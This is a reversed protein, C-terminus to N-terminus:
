STTLAGSGRLTVNYTAKGRLPGNVEISEVYATGTLTESGIVFGVNLLTGDLLYGILSVHEGLAYLGSVSMSWDYLGALYERVTGDATAAKEILENNITLTCDRSAAVSTLSAASEGTM